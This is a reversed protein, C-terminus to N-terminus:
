VGAARLTGPTVLNRHCRRTANNSGTTAARHLRAVQRDTGPSWPAGPSAGRTTATTRHVRPIAELLRRTYPHRPARFLEDVPAHEVIRGGYMVAVHDVLNRVVGLDHSIYVICSEHQTRIERIVRLLREQTLVDLGTTPEDMVIVSPKCVLAM